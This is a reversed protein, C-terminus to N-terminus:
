ARTPTDVEGHDLLMAALAPSTLPESMHFGQVETCGDDLLLQLQEETEVGEATVGLQLGRGLEILARVISHDEANHEITGVFSDDIKIVDFPYQRLSRISSYGTGFDDMALRVGLAKIDNLLALLDDSDQLLATETIELELRQAPLGSDALAQRLDDLLREHLQQPSLNVSVVADGPWRSADLCAQRLVWRGLAVIQGSQEALAIFQEPMLLGRSPHKWRLLAEAGTIRLNQSRFRPQYHIEFQQELIATRLEDERELRNQLGRDLEHGYFRWTGRGDAKAKYLAVDACRLLESASTADGPATAIGISAGVFVQSGELQFPLAVAQVIRACLQDIAQRDALRGLVMVFEDGGVRAVMDDERTCRKLRRAIGNLVEDGAAHGLTDNVPKFRDLDIYFVALQSEERKMNALRSELYERMRSRNPLGTLADHQSLYAIRAQARTEETIDSATGRYGAPRGDQLVPRAVLRCVRECGDAARYSCRLPQRPAELWQALAASDTILLDILPRGLWHETPHRTIERFRDSLYSLRAEADTEWIWDSAAEAVDRFRAESAALARRSRDVAAYSESMLRLTRMAQRSLLWALLGLGLAVLVLIPLAVWLLLRGPREPTWTLPLRSGNGLDLNVSPEAHPEAPSLLRLDTIGYHDGLKRLREEDLLDVFLVVPAPGPDPQIGSDGPTLAAAAVVAPLREAALLAVAAEEDEAAQRAQELLRDLGAGLWQHADLQQLEGRVVAYSTQGSPHVVFVAEYGFDPYLSPGFNSQEFAWGIDPEVSKLHVYADGWFAYDVVSRLLWDRETQVAKEALFRNQSVVDDDIRLAINVIALAAALLTFALLGSMAPLIRRGFAARIDPAQHEAAPHASPM